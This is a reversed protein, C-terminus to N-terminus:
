LTKFYEDSDIKEVNEMFFPHELAQQATMREEPNYKLMQSILNWFSDLAQGKEESEFSDISEQFLLACEGMESVLFSRFGLKIFKLCIEKEESRPRELCKKKFYLNSLFAKIEKPGLHVIFQWIAHSLYLVKFFKFYCNFTM